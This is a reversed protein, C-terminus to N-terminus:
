KTKKYQFYTYISLNLGILCLILAIGFFRNTDGDPRIGYDDYLIINESIQLLLCAISLAFLVISSRLGYLVKDLKM